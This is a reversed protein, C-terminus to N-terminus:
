SAARAAKIAAANEAIMKPTSRLEPLLAILQEAVEGAEAEATIVSLKAKYTEGASADKPLKDLADQAAAGAATHAALEANLRAETAKLASWNEQHQRGKYELEDIEAELEVATRPTADDDAFTTKATMTM